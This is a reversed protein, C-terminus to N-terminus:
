RSARAAEFREVYGEVSEMAAVEGILDLALDEARRFRVCAKGMDLRLGRAAYQERFWAEREGYINLLHLSLHNKQAVLGMYFLPRGNYTKPNVELPVVYSIGWDTTEAFGPQLNDLIVRRVTQLAERRDEPQQALYDDVTTM